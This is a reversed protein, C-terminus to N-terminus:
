DTSTRRVGGVLVKADYMARMRADCAHTTRTLRAPSRAILAGCTPHRVASAATRASRTARSLKRPRAAHNRERGGWARLCSTRRNAFSRRANANCRDRRVLALAGPGGA